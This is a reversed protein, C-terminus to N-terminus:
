GDEDMVGIYTIDEIETSENKYSLIIRGTKSYIAHAEYKIGDPLNVTKISTFKYSPENENENDKDKKKTM